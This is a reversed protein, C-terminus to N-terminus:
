CPRSPEVGDVWGRRRVELVEDEVDRGREVGAERVEKLNQSYALCLGIEPIQVQEKQRCGEVGAM